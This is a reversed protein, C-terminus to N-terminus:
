KNNPKLIEVHEGDDVSEFHRLPHKGTVFEILCINAIDVLTELNGTKEYLTIRKRISSIIDYAPRNPDHLLHYRFAGMLLRNRMLQEFEPSWESKKLEEISPMKKKPEEEPLGALRRWAARYFYHRVVDNHTM